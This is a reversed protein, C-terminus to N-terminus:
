WGVLQFVLIGVLVGLLAGALVEFVTHIKGEVRSEAVLAALLFALSGVIHNGSIFSIITATCFSISAHGSVTGGQFHSGGERYFLSKLGITLVVVLIIAIFTLHIPSKQIKHLVIDNFNSLRDFFLLYAVVLSNLAAILVAGAAVDKALEALPHYDETILDVTKEIATNIMEAVLVLAIAFLLILFEIRTFDFFLASVIVALTIFYHIKMNKEEKIASLIGTVAYNFSEIISRNKKLFIM